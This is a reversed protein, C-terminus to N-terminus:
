FLFLSLYIYFGNNRVRQIGRTKKNKKKSALYHAFIIQIILKLKGKSLTFQSRFINFHLNSDKFSIKEIIIHKAQKINM